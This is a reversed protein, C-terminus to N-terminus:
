TIIIKQKKITIRTKAIMDSMDGIICHGNSMWYGVVFFFFLMIVTVCNYKSFIDNCFISCSPSISSLGAVTQWFWHCIFVFDKSVHHNSIHGFVKYSYRACDLNLIFQCLTFWFWGLRHALFHSSWIPALACHITQMQRFEMTTNGEYTPALDPLWARAM